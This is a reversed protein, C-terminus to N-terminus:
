PLKYVSNETIDKLINVKSHKKLPKWVTEAINKWDIPFGTVDPTIERLLCITNKIGAIITKHLKIPILPTNHAPGTASPSANM